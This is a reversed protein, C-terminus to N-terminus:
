KVKEAFLAEVPCIWVCKYCMTCIQHDINLEAEGLDICNEPCVGVCIGCFDCKNDHLLIM